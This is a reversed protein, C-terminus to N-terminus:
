GKYVIRSLLGFMRRGCYSALIGLKNKLRVDPNAFSERRYDKILMWCSDAVKAYANGDAQAAILGYMNFAASLRRDRAAPLLHPHHGAMYAEIRATVDLVDFRRPSFRGTSSECNKRYYYIPEETVAVRDVKDILSCIIDLDEYMIGKRFRTEGFLSRHYLKGWATPLLTKQYLIDAEAEEAGFIQWAHRRKIMKDRRRVCGGISLQCGSRRVGDLLLEVADDRLMDDADVFCLWDGASHDIGFNRADSLGGNPKSLVKFRSDNEAYVGAIAATSDTSGDDVVIIEIERMTQAAVSALCDDLWPEANYAPIIISVM